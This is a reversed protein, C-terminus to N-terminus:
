EKYLVAWAQSTSENEEGDLWRRAELANELMHETYADYEARDKHRSWIENEDLKGDLVEIQAQVAKHLSDGFYNRKPLKPGIEKLKEVEAQIQEPTPKM